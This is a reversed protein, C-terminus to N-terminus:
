AAPRSLLDARGEEDLGPLITLSINPTKGLTYLYLICRSFMYLSVSSAPRSAKHGHDEATDPWSKGPKFLVKWIDEHTTGFFELLTQHKAPDFEWLNCTRRQCPLIRRVLMLQVEDVLKINKDEMSKIRAQLM